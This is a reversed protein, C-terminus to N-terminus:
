NVKRIPNFLTAECYFQMSYLLTGAPSTLKKPARKLNLVHLNGIDRNQLLALIQDCANSVTGIKKTNAAVLIEYVVRTSIESADFDTDAKIFIAQTTLTIEEDIMDYLYIEEPIFGVALLYEDTELITKIERMDEFTTLAM